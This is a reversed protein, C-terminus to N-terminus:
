SIPRENLKRRGVCQTTRIFPKQFHSSEVAVVLVVVVLVLVVVVLVLTAPTSKRQLLITM